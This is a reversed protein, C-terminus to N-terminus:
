HLAPKLSSSDFDPITRYRAVILSFVGFLLLGIAVLTYLTGNDRLSMLADGLGKVEKGNEFWASRVLSWGILLFVVARAAHGARGIWLVPEPAGSVLRMFHASVANRAQLAAGIILAIGIVGILFNGLDWTLVSSAAQQGADDSGARQKDGQAFQLATWALLMHAIASGGDGIRMALGKADSGHHEVDGLACCLKFIAYALLGLAALYLVLTGLPVNQIVDFAAQPGGAARNATSLALYGLLMYVLGRAVYGLRVLLSFKESKDM